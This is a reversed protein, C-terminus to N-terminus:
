VAFACDICGRLCIDFLGVPRVLFLERMGLEVQGDWGRLRSTLNFRDVFLLVLAMALRATMLPVM